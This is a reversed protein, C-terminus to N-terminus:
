FSKLLRHYMVKESMDSIKAFRSRKDSSSVQIGDFQGRFVIPPPLILGKKKKFFVEIEPLCSCCVLYHCRRRIRLLTVLRRSNQASQSLHAGAMMLMWFTARPGFFTPSGQEVTNPYSNNQSLMLHFRREIQIGRNTNLLAM